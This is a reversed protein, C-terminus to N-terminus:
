LKVRVDAGFLMTRDNDRAAWKLLTSLDKKVRGEFVTRGDAIVKIPQAFDFADPSLLLTFAKVGRTTARVTNGERVLDVRGSPHEHWFLPVSKPIGGSYFFGPLDVTKGDRSVVITMRTESPFKTMFELVDRGAPVTQGNVSVIVDGPRLDFGDANSNPTVSVVKAGSVRAGFGMLPPPAFRNVDSLQAADGGSATLEDIVLWHARDTGNSRDTEWTLKEPYPQRPHTRVFTEFSDKVEPWWATNHVGEPRLTYTLEVGQRRLHENYPEVMAAPYLPDRGGNVVFFPKNLLNNAYLEGEIGNSPNTLVLLAGNLPLFSAFPTTDRMAFYYTATAGDSVGAVVILNEDVNYTRKVSDLIFRLNDVQTNQWWMAESWATPLVYIQEAGALAGIGNGRPSPDPRAVGGHLQVRLPYKRSPDYNQPVEIQYAFDHSGLHHSLRVVGRPASASYTRGRKLRAFADDFSAGAKAIGDAAASAKQQSDAAWYASFAKDVADPSAASGLRVAISGVLAAMLM